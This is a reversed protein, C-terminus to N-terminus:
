AAITFALHVVIPQVETQDHVGLTTGRDGDGKNGRREMLLRRPATVDTLDTLRRTMTAKAM